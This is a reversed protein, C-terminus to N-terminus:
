PTALKYIVNGSAFYLASSSYKLYLGAKSTLQTGSAAGGVPVSYIGSSLQYYVNTGDTALGGVAGGANSLVTSVSSPATFPARRIAPESTAWYGYTKDDAVWNVGPQSAITANPPGNNNGGFVVASNGLDGFVWSPSLSTGLNGSIGTTTDALCGVGVDLTGLDSSLVDVTSAGPNALARVPNGCSNAYITGSEGSTFEAARTTVGYNGSGTWYVQGSAGDIVVHDLTDASDQGIVVPTGGPVNVQAIEHNGNDAFVVVTGDTDLDVIDSTGSTVFAIPQCAGGACTGGTLCGHSCRGCNNADTGMVNTCTGGCSTTGTPCACTGATCVMGGSCSVPNSGTCTGSQCSYTQDCKNTGTCLTGNTQNSGTDVCVSTGSACSTLGTHCPNAAPTCAVNATCGVCTGANCVQNSGCTTGNNASQGTDMCTAVGNTCSSVTGKDCAKSPTCPNGVMCTSCVGGYCYMGSGCSTGDNENGETTCAATGTSCVYVSKKCSNPTSCDGGTDCPTCVGQNCVSGTSGSDGADGAGCPSGNTEAQVSACTLGGGECAYQGVHCESPHCPGGGVCTSSDGDDSAEIAGDGQNADGGRTADSAIPTDSATPADLAMTADANGGDQSAESEVSGDEGGDLVTFSEIGLVKACGAAGTLVVGALVLGGVALWARM